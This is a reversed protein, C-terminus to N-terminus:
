LNLQRRIEPAQEIVSGLMSGLLEFWYARVEPTASNLMELYTEAMPNENKAEKILWQEVEKAKM